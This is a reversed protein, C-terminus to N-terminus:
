IIKKIEDLQQIANSLNQNTLGVVKCNDKHLITTLEQTITQYVSINNKQAVLKIKNLSNDSLTHCCIILKIKYPKLEINDLGFVIENAKMSFGLYTTLKSNM